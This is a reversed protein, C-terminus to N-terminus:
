KNKIYTKYILEVFKWDEIADIEFSQWFENEFHCIKGGFRNSEELM